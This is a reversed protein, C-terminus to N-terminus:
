ALIGLEKIQEQSMKMFWRMLWTDIKDGMDKNSAILLLFKPDTYCSENDSFYELIISDTFISIDKRMEIYLEVINTVTRYQQNNPDTAWSGEPEKRSLHQAKAENFYSYINRNVIDNLNDHIGNAFKWEIGANNTVWSETLNFKDVNPIDELALFKNALSNFQEKADNTALLKSRIRLKVAFLKANILFFEKTLNKVQTKLKATFFKIFNDNDTYIIVKDKNHLVPELWNSAAFTEFSDLRDFADKPSSNNYYFSNTIVPRNIYDEGVVLHNNTPDFLIFPQVYCSNFLHLM